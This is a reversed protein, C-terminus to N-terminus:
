DGVYRAILAQVDEGGRELLVAHLRSPMGEGDGSAALLEPMLADLGGSGPHRSELLRDVQDWFTAGQLYFMDYADPDGAAHRRGYEVLGAEVPRDPDVFVARLAALLEPSLDSRALAKLAYHHAFSENFWVPLPATASGLLDHLQHVQEHALVLMTRVANREANDPDGVVYNALFSRSGAAGGAEGHADDIGLWVVLLHRDREPLSEPVGFLDSFYALVGRHLDLLPLRAFRSADDLVYTAHVRDFDHSQTALDGFAYFEPASGMPPVRWVDGGVRTAGIVQGGDPLGEIRLSLPVADGPQSLRLLSTPESLLWWGSGAFHWTSQGAANVADAAATGAAITWDLTRCDDPVMWSGDPGADLAVGDCRPDVVQSELGFEIGRAKAPRGSGPHGGLDLSAQLRLPQSPDLRVVYELGHPADAGAAASGTSPADHDRCGTVTLAICALLAASFCVRLGGARRIPRIRVYRTLDIADTM